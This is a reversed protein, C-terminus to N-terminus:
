GEEEVEADAIVFNIRYNVPKGCEECEDKYNFHGTCIEDWECGSSEEQAWKYLPAGCYPCLVSHENEIQYTHTEIAM